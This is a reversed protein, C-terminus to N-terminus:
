SSGVGREQAQREEPHGRHERQPASSGYLEPHADDVPLPATGYDLGPHEAAIFAVRWEGDLNMALKGTEFANSPSSSARGAQFRVLKDHGYWDDLEEALAADAGVGSGECTSHGERGVWKGGFM